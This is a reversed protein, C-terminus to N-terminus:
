EDVSDIPLRGYKLLKEKFDANFKMCHWTHIYMNEENVSSTAFHFDLKGNGQDVFFTRPFKEHWKLSSKGFSGDTGQILKSSVKTAINMVDYSDKAHVIKFPFTDFDFAPLLLNAGVMLSTGSNPIKKTVM